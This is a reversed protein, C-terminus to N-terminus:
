PYLSIYLLYNYYYLFASTTYPMAIVSFLSQSYDTLTKKRHRFDVCRDRANGVDVNKCYIKAIRNTGYIFRWGIYYSTNDYNAGIM